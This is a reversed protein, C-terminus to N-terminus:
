KPPMAATFTLAKDIWADLSSRDERWAHPVAVYAKMPRGEPGFDHAGDITRLEAMDDDSLRLGISPGFLGMFMNGHVFAALNGFMAKVEVREDDDPAVERFFDKDDASPKAVIM